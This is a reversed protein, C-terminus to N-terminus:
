GRGNEALNFNALHLMPNSDYKEFRRVAHREFKHM